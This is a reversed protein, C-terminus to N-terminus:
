RIADVLLHLDTVFNCIRSRQVRGVQIGRAEWITTIINWTCDLSNNAKRFKTCLDTIAFTLELVDCSTQEFSVQIAQFPNM